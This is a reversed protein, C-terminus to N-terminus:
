EETFDHYIKDVCENNEYIKGRYQIKSVKEVFFVCFDIKKYTEIIGNKAWNIASNATDYVDAYEKGDNDFYKSRFKNNTDYYFVCLHTWKFSTDIKKVM